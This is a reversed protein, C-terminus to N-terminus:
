AVQKTARNVVLKLKYGKDLVVGNVANSKVITATGEKSVRVSLVGTVVCPVSEDLCRLVEDSVEQIVSSTVYNTCGSEQAILRIFYARPILTKTSSHKIRLRISESLNFSYGRSVLYFSVVELSNLISTVTKEPLNLKSSIASSLDKRTVKEVM